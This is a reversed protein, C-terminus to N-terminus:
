FYHHSRPLPKEHIRLQSWTIMELLEEMTGYGGPLVIFADARHAMEAKREHM